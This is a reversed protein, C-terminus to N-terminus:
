NNTVLTITFQNGSAGILDGVPVSVSKYLGKAELEKRLSNINERSLASGYIVITKQKSDGSYSIRNVVVGDPRGDLAAAILEVPSSTALAIPLLTTILTQTKAADASETATDGQVKVDSSEPHNLALLLYSPSLTVVAIVALISLAISILSIFRQRYTAWVRKQEPVPLVNSM